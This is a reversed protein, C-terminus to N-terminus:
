KEKAQKKKSPFGLLFGLVMGYITSVDWNSTIPCGRECGIFYYYAFGLLGGIITSIILIYYKKILNM